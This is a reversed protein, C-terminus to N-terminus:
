FDRDDPENIGIFLVLKMGNRFSLSPMFLSMLGLMSEFGLGSKEVIGSGLRALVGLNLNFFFTFALYIM